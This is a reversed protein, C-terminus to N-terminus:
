IRGSGHVDKKFERQNHYVLMNWESGLYTEVKEKEWVCDSTDGISGCPCLIVDM